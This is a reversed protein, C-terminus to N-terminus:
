TRDLVGSDFLGRILHNDVRSCKFLIPFRLLSVVVWVITLDRGYDFKCSYIRCELSHVHIIGM